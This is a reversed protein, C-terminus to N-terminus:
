CLLHDALKVAEEKTNLWRDEIVAGNINVFWMGSKAQKVTAIGNSSQRYIGGKKATRWGTDKPRLKKSFRVKDLDIAEMAADATKFGYDTLLEDRIGVWQGDFSKFVTTVIGDDIYIYNGNTRERWDSMKVEWCLHGNGDM